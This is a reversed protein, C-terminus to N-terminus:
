CDNHAIVTSYAPCVANRRSGRSLYLTRDCEKNTAAPASEQVLEWVGHGLPQRSRGPPRDALLRFLLPRDREGTSFIGLDPLRFQEDHQRGDGFLSEASGYLRQERVSRFLTTYPFLNSPPM